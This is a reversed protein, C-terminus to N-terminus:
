KVDRGTAHELKVRAIRADVAANLADLRARTLETEADTLTTSTIKGNRFLERAVRYAEQASALERDSTEIAVDAEKVSQTAQVVELEVGDRVVNKQAVLAHARAEFDGAGAGGLLVDNPSWTLQAGAEWTPFWEESQPFRRPNPNAYIVNGFGAISPWAAGRQARAQRLAAQANADISRIEPRKAHAEAVFEKQSGLVAPPAGELKEGPSLVEEDRAHVAIRVQKELLEALNKARAVALEAAAVATQARLVDAKSAYGVSFQNHADQLHTKQDALAQEAVVNAGRARLWNYFAVKGDSASKARVALVDQKAAEEAHTAASYGQGIRLFYDSIPVVIGVQLLYNNLVLPFSFAVAATPSPNLTGPPAPTGVISGEGLNPPVFSSLRTYRATGTLRPLFQSWAQDVRAAASRLSEEAAKASYSTKAARAAVQESTLGGAVYPVLEVPATPAPVVTEVVKTPEKKPEAKDPRTPQASAFSPLSLVFLPLLRIRRM